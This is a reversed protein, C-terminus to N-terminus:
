GPGVGEEDVVTSEPRNQFETVKYVNRDLDVKERKRPPPNVSPKLEIDIPLHTEGPTKLYLAVSISDPPKHAMLCTSCRPPMLPGFFPFFDRWGPDPHSLTFTTFALALTGNLVSLGPRPRELANTQPGLMDRGRVQMWRCTHEHHHAHM